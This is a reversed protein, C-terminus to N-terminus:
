VASPRESGVLKSEGGWKVGVIATGYGSPAMAGWGFPWFPDFAAWFPWFHRLIALFHGWFLTQVGSPGEPGVLKSEGGWKVGGVPSGSGSRATAGWGFPWFPDFFAWFPWFQSLIAGFYLRSAVQAGIKVGWGM